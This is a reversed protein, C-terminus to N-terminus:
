MGTTHSYQVTFNYSLLLLPLQASAAADSKSTNAIFEKLTGADKLSIRDTIDLIGPDFVSQKVELLLM